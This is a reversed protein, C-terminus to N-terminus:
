SASLISRRTLSVRKRPAFRCFSKVFRRFILLRIDAAAILTRVEYGPRANMYGTSAASGNNGTAGRAYGPGGMPHGYGYGSGGLWHGDKSMRGNFDSLDSLCQTAPKVTAANNKTTSAHTATGM